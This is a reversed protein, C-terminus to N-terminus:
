FVIQFDSFEGVYEEQKSEIDDVKAFTPGKRISKLIEKVKNAKGAFVAEVRGDELNKVWGAIDLEEAKSRTFNRFGVGQVRGSIFVHVRIMNAGSDM